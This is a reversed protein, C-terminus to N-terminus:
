KLKKLARKKVMGLVFEIDPIAIGVTLTLLIVVVTIANFRDPPIYNSSMESPVAGQLFASLPPPYTVCGSTSFPVEMQPYHLPGWSSKKNPLTSQEEIFFIIHKLTNSTKSIKVRSM